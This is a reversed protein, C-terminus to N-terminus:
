HLLSYQVEEERLNLCLHWLWLVSVCLSVGRWWGFLSMLSLVRLRHKSHQQRCHSAEKNPQNIFQCSGGADEALCCLIDCYFGQCRNRLWSPGAGVVLIETKREKRNIWWWKKVIKNKEQFLLTNRIVEPSNMVSSVRWMASCLYVSHPSSFPTQRWVTNKEISSFPLYLLTRSKDKSLISRQPM